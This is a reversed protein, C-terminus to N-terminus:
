KNHTRSQHQNTFTYSACTDSYSYDNPDQSANLKSAYLRYNMSVNFGTFSATITKKNNSLSFLANPSTSTPMGSAAKGPAVSMYNYTGGTYENGISFISYNFSVSATHIYEVAQTNDELNTVTVPRTCRWVTSYTQSSASASSVIMTGLICVFGLLVIKKVIKKM